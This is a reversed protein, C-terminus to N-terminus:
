KINPVIMYNQKKIPRKKYHEWSAQLNNCTPVITKRVNAPTNTKMSNKTAAVTLATTMERTIDNAAAPPNKATKKAQTAAM